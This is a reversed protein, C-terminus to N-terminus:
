RWSPQVDVPKWLAADIGNPILAVNEHIETFLRHLERNLVIVADIPRLAEYLRTTNIPNGYLSRLPRLGGVRLVQRRAKIGAQQAIKIDFSLAIDVEESPDDFVHSYQPLANMLRRANNGYAWGHNDENMLWNVSVPSDTDIPGPLGAPKGVSQPAPAAAVAFAARRRANLSALDIAQARASLASLVAVLLFVGRSVLRSLTPGHLVM